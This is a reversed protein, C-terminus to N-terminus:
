TLGALRESDEPDLQGLYIGLKRFSDASYLNNLEKQLFFPIVMVKFVQIMFMIQGTHPLDMNECNKHRDYLKQSSHGDGDHNIVAAAPDQGTTDAKTGQHGKNGKHLHKEPGYSVNGFFVVDQM